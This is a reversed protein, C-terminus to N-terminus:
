KNKIEIVLLIAMETLSEFEIEPMEKLYLIDRKNLLRNAVEFCGNVTYFLIGKLHSSPKFVEVFRSDYVGVNMFSLSGPRKLKNKEDLVFKSKECILKSTEFVVGFSIILFSVTENINNALTLKRSNSICLVEESQVNVCKGDDVYVECSGVIPLIYTLRYNSDHEIKTGIFLDVEKIQIEDKVDVLRFRSLESKECLGNESSYFSSKNLSANTKM